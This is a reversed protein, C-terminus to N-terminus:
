GKLVDIATIKGKTIKEVQLSRSAPIGHKKWYIVAQRKINFANAINDDSGLLEKLKVISKM